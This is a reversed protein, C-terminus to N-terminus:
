GTTRTMGPVQYQQALKMVVIISPPERSCGNGGSKSAICPFPFDTKSYIRFHLALLDFEHNRICPFHDLQKERIIM